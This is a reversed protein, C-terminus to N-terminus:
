HEMEYAWGFDHKSGVLILQIESIFKYIKHAVKKIKARCLQPCGEGERFETHPKFRFIVQFSTYYKTTKGVILRM